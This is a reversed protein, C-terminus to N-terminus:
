ATLRMSIEKEQITSSSSQKLSKSKMHIIQGVEYLERNADTNAYDTNGVIKFNARKNKHQVVRLHKLNEFTLKSMHVLRLLTDMSESQIVDNNEYKSFATPGGGFLRHAESQDIGLDERIKRIEQGSLLEDYQKKAATIARRYDRMLSTTSPQAGCEECEFLVEKVKLITDKYPIERIRNQQTLIGEGCAKCYSNHISM